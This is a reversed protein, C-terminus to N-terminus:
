PLIERMAAGERPVDVFRSDGSRAAPWGFPPVGLLIARFRTM